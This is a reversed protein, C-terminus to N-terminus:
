KPRSTTADSRPPEPSSSLLVEFVRYLLRTREEDTLQQNISAHVTIEKTHSESMMDTM